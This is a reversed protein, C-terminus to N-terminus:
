GRAQQLAERIYTDEHADLLFKQEVRMKAEWTDIGWFAGLLVADEYSIGIDDYHCRIERNGFDDLAHRRAGSLKDHLAGKQNDLIFRGISSKATYTDEGWLAGLVKADCYGFPSNDYAALPDMSPEGHDYAEPEDVYDPPLAEPESGAGGCALAFGLLALVTILRPIRM